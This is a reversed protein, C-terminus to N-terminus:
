ARRRCCSGFRCRRIDRREERKMRLIFLWPSYFCIPSNGRSLGEPFESPNILNNQPLCANEEERHQIEIPAVAEDGIRRQPSRSSNREPFPSCIFLVWDLWQDVWDGQLRRYPYKVPLTSGGLPHFCLPPSLTATTGSSHSINQLATITSLPSEHQLLPSPHAASFLQGSLGDVCMIFAM